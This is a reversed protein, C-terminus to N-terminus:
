EAVMPEAMAEEVSMGDKDIKALLEKQKLYDENIIGAKSQLMRWAKRREVVFLVMKLSLARYIENGNEDYEITYTKFNEIYSRHNPDRHRRHIIDDMTMLKIKDELRVMGEAEEPKIKKHHNRFRAETFAWHAVTYQYRKKTVPAMKEAWDSKFSQNSKLELADTYTEGLMPNFVFEPLGRSDRSRLAQIEAAYDAIGHEPMCSTYTQFFATGRYYLGDLIAKYMTGSNAMSVQAVFPSGHGSILSESVSKHETYKGQTAAGFQNMDFGGPMPSSESNQGGTNSYVQTDLLVIKVNPRNQMVVKSLNQYGIDGMAGDGGIAWVKPMENIEQDTM